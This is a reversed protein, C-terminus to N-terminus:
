LPGGRAPPKHTYTHACAHAQPVQTHTNSLTNSYTHSGIYPHTYTYTHVFLLPLSIAHFGELVISLHPSSHVACSTEQETKLAKAKAM